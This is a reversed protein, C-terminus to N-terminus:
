KIKDIKVTQPIGSIKELLKAQATKRAHLEKKAQTGQVNNVTINQQNFTNSQFLPGGPMSLKAKEVELREKELQLREDERTFKEKMSYTDIALKAPFLKASTELSGDNLIDTVVTIAADMAKDIHSHRQRNEELKAEAFIVLAPDNEDIKILERKKAM